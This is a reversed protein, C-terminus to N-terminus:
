VERNTPLTLHTYSVAIPSYCEKKKSWDHVTVLSIGLLKAVQKRDLFEQPEKSILRQEFANIKQEVGDLITRTLEEANVHDVQTQKKGHRIKYFM